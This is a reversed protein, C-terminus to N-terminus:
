QTEVIDEETSRMDQTSGQDSQLRIEDMIDGANFDDDVTKSEEDPGLMSQAIRDAFLARSNADFRGTRAKVSTVIRQWQDLTRVPEIEAIEAPTRGLNRKEVETKERAEAVYLGKPLTGLMMGKLFLPTEEDDTKLMFEGSMGFGHRAKEGYVIIVRDANKVFQPKAYGGLYEYGSVIPMVWTSGRHGRADVEASRNTNIRPGPAPDFAVVHTKVNKFNHQIWNAFDTATAGGRSFGKILVTVTQGNCRHILNKMIRKAHALNKDTNNAGDDRTGWFALPGAYEYIHKIINEGNEDTKRRQYIFAGETGINNGIKKQQAAELAESHMTQINEEMHTEWMQQNSGAFNFKIIIDSTQRDEEQRPDRDEKQTPDRQIYRKGVAQLSSTQRSITIPEYVFGMGGSVMSRHIHEKQLSANQHLVRAISPSKMPEHPMKTSENATTHAMQSTSQGSTSQGSTSQWNPRPIAIPEYIARLITGDKQTQQNDVSDNNQHLRQSNQSMDALPVSIMTEDSHVGDDGFAHSVLSPERATRRQSTQEQSNRNKSPRAHITM